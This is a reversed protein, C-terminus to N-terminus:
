SATYNYQSRVNAGGKQVYATSTVLNAFRHNKFTRINIVLLTTLLSKVKLALALGLVVVSIVLNHIKIFSSCIVNFQQGDSYHYRHYAEWSTEHKQKYSASVAKATPNVAGGGSWSVLGISKPQLDASFQSNGDVDVM